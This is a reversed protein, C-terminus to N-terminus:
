VKRATSRKFILVIDRTAGHGMNTDFGTVLEWEDRGLQNIKDSLDQEDIKGGMLGKARTKFVHYEWKM